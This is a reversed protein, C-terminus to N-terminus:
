KNFNNRILQALYLQFMLELHEEVISLKVEKPSIQPLIFM